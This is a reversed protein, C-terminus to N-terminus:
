KLWMALLPMPPGGLGQVDCIRLRSGVLVIMESSCVLKGRRISMFFGRKLRNELDM